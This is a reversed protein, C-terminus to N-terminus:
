RMLISYLGIKWLYDIFLFPIYNKPNAFNMFNESFGNFAYLVVITIFTISSYKLNDVNKSYHRNFNIILFDLKSHILHSAILPLTNYYM